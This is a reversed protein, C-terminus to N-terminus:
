SRLPKIHQLPELLVDVAGEFVGRLMEVADIRRRAAYPRVHGRRTRLVHIAGHTRRM